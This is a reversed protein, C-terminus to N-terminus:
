TLVGGAEAFANSAFQLTRRPQAYASTPLSAWVPGCKNLAEQVRGAAVDSLANRESTLEVAARDQSEPSFDPLGLKNQLNWWTKYIFQYAGAATTYGVTGDTWRFEKRINPHRSFDDFLSGGFLTRYGNPGATGECARILALWAAINQQTREVIRDADM